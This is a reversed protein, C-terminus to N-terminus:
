EPYGNKRLWDALAEAIINQQTFPRTKKINRDASARLLLPPLFHNHVEYPRGHGGAM